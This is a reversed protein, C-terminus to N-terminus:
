HDTDTCQTPKGHNAKHRVRSVVSRQNWFDSMRDWRRCHLNKCELPLRRTPLAKRPAAHDLAASDVLIRQIGWTAMVRDQTSSQSCDQQKKEIANHLLKPQSSLAHNSRSPRTCWHKPQAHLPKTVERNYQSTGRFMSQHLMNQGHATRGHINQGPASRGHISTVAAEEITMHHTQTKALVQHTAQLPRM